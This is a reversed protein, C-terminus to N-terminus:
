ILAIKTGVADGPLGKRFRVELVGGRGHISAVRGILQNGSASCWVARRGIYASAEKRSDVGDVRILAYKNHQTRQGGRYGIFRARVSKSAKSIM